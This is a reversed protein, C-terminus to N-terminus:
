HSRMTWTVQRTAARGFATVAMAAWLVAGANSEGVALATFEIEAGDQRGYAKLVSAVLQAMADIGFKDRLMKQGIIVVDGGVPLVIFPM